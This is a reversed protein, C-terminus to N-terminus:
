KVLQMVLASKPTPKFAVLYEKTVGATRQAPKCKSITAIMNNYDHSVRGLHLEKGLLTYTLDITVNFPAPKKKNKRIVAISRKEAIIGTVVGSAFGEWQNDFVMAAVRNFYWLDKLFSEENWIPDIGFHTCLRRLREISSLLPLVDGALVNFGNRFPITSLVNGNHEIVFEISDAGRLTQILRLSHEFYPLKCVTAGEWISKNLKFTVSAKSDSQNLVLTLDIPCNQNTTKVISKMTGGTVACAFSPSNYIAGDFKDKAVLLLSAEIGKSEITCGHEQIMAILDSGSVALEMPSFEVTDGFDSFRRLKEAATADNAAMKVEINSLAQLQHTVKKGEVTTRISFRPDLAIISGVQSEVANQISQPHRAQLWKKADQIATTLAVSESLLNKTPVGVSISRKRKWGQNEDLWKQMFLHYGIRSTVDILVLFVPLDKIKSYYRAHKSELAYTALSKDKNHKQSVTSKLQIYISEGTLEGDVGCLEVHFDKGYDTFHENRVWNLPLTAALIQKGLDDTQHTSHKQL